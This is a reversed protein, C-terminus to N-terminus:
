SKGWLDSEGEAEVGELQVGGEGGRAGGLVGPVLGFDVVGGGGGHGRVFGGHRGEAGALGDGEIEAAGGGVRQVRM